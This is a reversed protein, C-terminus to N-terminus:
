CFGARAPLLTRLPYLPSSAAAEAAELQGGCGPKMRPMQMRQPSAWVSACGASSGPRARLHASDACGERETDQQLLLTGVHHPRSLGAVFHLEPNIDPASSARVSPATQCTMPALPTGTHDHKTAQPDASQAPPEAVSCWTQMPTTHLQWIAGDSERSHMSSRVRQTQMTCRAFQM